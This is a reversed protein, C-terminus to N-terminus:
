RVYVPNSLIWPLRRGGITQAAELRYVGRERARFAFREGEGASAERGDRLLRWPAPAPLRGELWLGNGLAVESGMPAGDATFRFGVASREMEFAVYARGERLGERVAEETLAPALVHTNVFRFVLEYPDLQVRGLRVNQHADNGAIGVFRRRQTMRDWQALFADPPDWFALFRRIGTESLARAVRAPERLDGKTDAHTNYIEMGALEPDDWADFEEPHAAFVPGGEIRLRGGTEAGAFFLVGGHFGRLPEGRPPDAPHDTMMVFDVGAARCAAVIQEPTGTSDHSLYSHCHIIGRFDHLRPGSCGALALALLARKV